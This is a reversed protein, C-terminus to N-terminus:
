YKTYALSDGRKVRRVTFAFPSLLKYWCCLIFAFPSLV